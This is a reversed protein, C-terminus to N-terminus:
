KKSRRAATLLSVYSVGDRNDRTTNMGAKVWAMYGGSLISIQAFGAAKLAMAAQEARQNQKGGIILKESPEIVHNAVLLFAENELHKKNNPYYFLFPLNICRIKPRGTAFEAVTRVDVYISATGSEFLSMAEYVTITETSM